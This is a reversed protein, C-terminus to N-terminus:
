GGASAPHPWRVTAVVSDEEAVWTHACEPPWLAYDGPAALVVERDRFRLRFRGAVLISLTVTGGGVAWAGRTTGAPHAAWKVEATGTRRADGDPMFPGVFWGRRPDGDALANGVLLVPAGASPPTTVGDGGDRDTDGSQAASAAEQTGNTVPM